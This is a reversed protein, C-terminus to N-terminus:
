ESCLQEFSNVQFSEFGFIDLIGISAEKESVRIKKKTGPVGDKGCDGAVSVNIRRVLHNFMAGYTAKILAQVGKEAQEQSLVRKHTEGGKWGTGGITIEYYCLAQNLAEKTIGLLDVVYDLHPNDMQLACEVEGIREFTLNSAHLLASTVELM